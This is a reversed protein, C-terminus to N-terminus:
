YTAYCDIATDVAENTNAIMYNEEFSLNTLIVTTAQLCFYMVILGECLVSTTTEGISITNSSITFPYVSDSIYVYHCEIDSDDSTISTPEIAFTLDNGNKTMDVQVFDGDQICYVSALTGSVTVSATTNSSNLTQYADTIYTSDLSSSFVVCTVPANAAEGLTFTVTQTGSNVLNIDVQAIASNQFAIANIFVGTFVISTTTNGVDITAKNILINDINKEIEYFIDGEQMNAPPVYGVYPRRTKFDPDSNTELQYIVSTLNNFWDVGAYKSVIQQNTEFLNRAAEYNGTAWYNQLAGWFEQDTYHIDQLLQIM